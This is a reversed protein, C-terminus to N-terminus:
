DQEKFVTVGYSSYREAHTKLWRKFAANECDQKDHGDQPVIFEPPLDIIHPYDPKVLVATVM